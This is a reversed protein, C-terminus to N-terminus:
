KCVFSLEEANLERCEGKHLNGDLLLQGIRVRELTNVGIDVTGLMRKIEHYKGETIVISIKERSDLVSVKAPRCVTGDALTVGKQLKEIDSDTIPKDLGVIYEKEINSKPSIVKHGFDGDDTIILLGTTNKDLRGVPFLGERPFFEKVLDVVTERSKDDSASLVGEPKNIMIYVHKKYNVPHGDLLIEDKSLDVKLGIDGSVKGNVSVRGRLIMGRATKRSEGTAGAVIKDLREM